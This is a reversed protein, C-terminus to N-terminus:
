YVTSFGMRSRAIVFPTTENECTGQEVKLANEETRM